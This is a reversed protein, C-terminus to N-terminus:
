VQCEGGGGIADSIKCGGFESLCLCEFDVGFIM